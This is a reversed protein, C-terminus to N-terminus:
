SAPSDHGVFSLVSALSVQFLLSASKGRDCLTKLFLCFLASSEEVDKNDEMDTQPLIKARKSCLGPLPIIDFM